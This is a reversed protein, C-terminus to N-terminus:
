EMGMCELQAITGSPHQPQQQKNHIMPQITPTTQLHWDQKFVMSLKNPPKTTMPCLWGETLQGGGITREEHCNTLGGMVRDIVKNVLQGQEAKTSTIDVLSKIHPPSKQQNTNSSQVVSVHKALQFNLEAQRFIPISREVHDPPLAMAADQHHVMSALCQELIGNMGDANTFHLFVQGIVDTVLEEGVTDCFFAPSFALEGNMLNLM